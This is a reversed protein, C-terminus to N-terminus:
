RSPGIALACNSKSGSVVSPATGPLVVGVEGVAVGHPRFAPTAVVRQGEGQSELDTTRPHGVEVRVEKTIEEPVQAAEPRNPIPQVHPVQARCRATALQGQECDRVEPRPCCNPRPRVNHNRRANVRALSRGGEHHAPHQLQQKRVALLRTPQATAEDEHDQGHQIGITHGNAIAAAIQTALVEVAAPLVRGQARLHCHHTLNQLFEAGSRAADQRQQIEM